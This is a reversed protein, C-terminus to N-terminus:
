NKSEDANEGEGEGETNESEPETYPRIGITLTTAEKFARFITYKRLNSDRPDVYEWEWFNGLEAGPSFEKNTPKLQSLQADLEKSNSACSQKISFSGTTLILKNPSSSNTGYIADSDYSAEAQVLWDGKVTKFTLRRSAISDSPQMQHYKDSTVSIVNKYKEVFEEPPLNLMDQSAAIKVLESFGECDQETAPPTKTCATCCLLCALIILLCNKTKVLFVM